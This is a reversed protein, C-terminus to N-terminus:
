EFRSIWDVNDVGKIEMGKTLKGTSIEYTWVFNGSGSSAVAIYAKGDEVDVPSAHVVKNLPLDLKTRTKATLDLM